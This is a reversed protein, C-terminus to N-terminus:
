GVKPIESNPWSDPDSWRRVTDEVPKDDITGLCSYVCRHAVIKVSNRSANKGNFVMRIQRTATDNYIINDATDWKSSSKNTM